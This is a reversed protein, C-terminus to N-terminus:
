PMKQLFRQWTKQCNVLWRPVAKGTGASKLHPHSQTAEYLLHEQAPDIDVFFVHKGQDLATQFHKFRFHPEQFGKFGAEWTCFGLLVIALFIFPIWGADTNTLGFWYALILVLAAAIIGITAGIKTAHVVDKRVLSEVSHLDRKEVNAEDSSLVHCQATTIGRNTLDHELKELDDLDESVYYYRKM